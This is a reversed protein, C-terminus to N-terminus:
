KFVLPLNFYNPVKKIEVNGLYLLDTFKKSVKLNNDNINNIENVLFDINDVISKLRQPHTDFKEKLNKRVFNMHHMKIEAYPFLYPIKNIDNYSRSKDVSCTKGNIIKTCYEHGGKVVDEKIKSIFPSYRPQSYNRQGQYIPLKYYNVYECISHEINNEQIYKKAKLFENKDFFEDTDMDLFYDCGNYKCILRNENRKQAEIQSAELETAAFKNIKFYHIEDVIKREKLGNIIDLDKQQIKKNGYYNYLQYSL